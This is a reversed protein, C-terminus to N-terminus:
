GISTRLKTCPSQGPPQSVPLVAALLFWARCASWPDVLCTSAAFGPGTWARVLGVQREEALDTKNGVLVMVAPDFACFLLSLLDYLSCPQGMVCHRTSGARPPTLSM